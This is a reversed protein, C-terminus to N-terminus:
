HGIYMFYEYFHISRTVYIAIGSLSVMVWLIIALISWLFLGTVSWFGKLQMFGKYALTFYFAQLLFGFIFALQEWPTDKLVGKLPFVILTFALNAFAVFMLNAVLHESYNYKRRYYIMKFFFAFFPIAFMAVLSGHKSMFDRAVMGRHYKIELAARIEPDKVASIREPIPKSAEMESSNVFTDVLVFLGMLLLFFTFPNFYKKRKGSIYERAVLGPRLTLERLLYFLGKDAHTVAHFGEHIFNKFTFRHTKAPQGCKPCFSHTKALNTECNLCHTNEM